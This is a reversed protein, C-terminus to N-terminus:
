AAKGFLRQLWSRRASSKRSTPAADWSIVAERGNAYVSQYVARQIQLAREVQAQFDHWLQREEETFALGVASSSAKQVIGVLTAAEAATMSVPVSMPDIVRVAM